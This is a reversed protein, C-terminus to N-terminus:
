ITSNNQNNDMMMIKEVLMKFLPETETM